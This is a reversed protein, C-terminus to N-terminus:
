RSGSEAVRGASDTLQTHLSGLETADELWQQIYHNARSHMYLPASLSLEDSLWQPASHELTSHLYQPPTRPTTPPPTRLVQLPLWRLPTYM